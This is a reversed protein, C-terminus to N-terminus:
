QLCHRETEDIVDSRIACLELAEIQMVCVYNMSKVTNTTGQKYPLSESKINKLKDGLHQLRATMAKADIILTPPTPVRVAGDGEIKFFM